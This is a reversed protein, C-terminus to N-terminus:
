KMEKIKLINLEKFLEFTKKDDEYFEAACIMNVLSNLSIEMNNALDELNSKLYPNEFVLRMEKKKM